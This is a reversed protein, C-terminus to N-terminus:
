LTRSLPTLVSPQHQKKWMIKSGIVLKEVTAFLNAFYQQHVITASIMWTLLQSSPKVYSSTKKHLKTNPLFIFSVFSSFPSLHLHILDSKIAAPWHCTFIILSSLQRREYWWYHVYTTDRWQPWSLDWFNSPSAPWCKSAQAEVDRRPGGRNSSQRQLFEDQNQLRDIHSASRNDVSITM